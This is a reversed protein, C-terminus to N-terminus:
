QDREAVPRLFAYLTFKTSPEAIRELKQIRFGAQRALLAFSDTSYVNLHDVSFEERDAGCEAAVEGDPLEVYVLGHPELHRRAQSLVRAPDAVHELVKNFTILDFRGLSRSRELSGEYAQVGVVDRAHAVSYPNLDLATGEWGEEAMAALFVCLGSGVDLVRRPQGQPRAGHQRVYACVRAVRQHNDSREPPLARIRDYADGLGDNGYTAEVYESTYLADMDMGHESTFHGCRGCELVDRRYGEPPLSAFATEGHPPKRYHFRRTRASDGCAPCASAPSDLWGIERMQEEDMYRRYEDIRDPEVLLLYRAGDPNEVLVSRLGREPLRRNLSPTAYYGFDKRAVDYETGSATVLTIQEDPELELNAVHRITVQGRRGVSFSRAPDISETRM